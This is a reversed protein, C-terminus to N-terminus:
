RVPLTGNALGHAIKFAWGGLLGVLVAVAWWPGPRLLRLYDRGALLEGAGCLAVAALAAAFIPGFPHALLASRVQGHTLASMSTTLGCSPCPYGTRSLFGCPPLHLDEHTGYGAQHPTLCRALAFVALCPILLVAGRVRLGLPLRDMGVPAIVVLEEAAQSQM